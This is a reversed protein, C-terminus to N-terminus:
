DIRLRFKDGCESCEMGWADSTDGKMLAYFLQNSCNNCEFRRTRTCSPPRSRSRSRHFQSPRRKKADLAKRLDPDTRASPEASAQANADASPEPMPLHSQATADASPEPVGVPPRPMAKPPIGKRRGEKSGVATVAQAERQTGEAEEEEESSISRAQTGEATVEQAERQTGEATVAQAEAQTGEATVAHAEEQTGEAHAEEAQAEEAQAEEAQAEEAQAELYDHQADIDAAQDRTIMGVPLAIHLRAAREGRASWDDLLRSMPPPCAPPM